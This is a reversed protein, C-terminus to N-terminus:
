DGAQGAPVPDVPAPAEGEVQDQYEDLQLESGAPDPADDGLTIVIAYDGEDYQEV